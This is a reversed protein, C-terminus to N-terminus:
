HIILRLCRASHGSNKIHPNPVKIYNTTYDESNLVTVECPHHLITDRLPTKPKLKTKKLREAVCQMM